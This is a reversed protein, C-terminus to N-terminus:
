EELVTRLMINHFIVITQLLDKNEYTNKLISFIKFEKLHAIRSGTLIAFKCSKFSLRIFLMSSKMM